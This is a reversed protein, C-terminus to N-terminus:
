NVPDIHKELYFETSNDNNLKIKNDNFTESRFKGRFNGEIDKKEGECDNGTERGIMKFNYITDIFEYTGTAVNCADLIYTGDKKMTLKAIDNSYERVSVDYVIDVTKFGIGKEDKIYNFLYYGGLLIACFIILPKFIEM